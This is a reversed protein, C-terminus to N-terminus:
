QYAVKKQKRRAKFFQRLLLASEEALVSPIVEIHHNLRPDNLLQHLSAVAGTKPEPAAYVLTQIRAQLLLGACMICPELTVYLTAGNLRYNGIAKAAARIVQMEAHASPDALAIPANHAVFQQGDALCLMAGVPVEQVLAAQKAQLLAQRMGVEHKM